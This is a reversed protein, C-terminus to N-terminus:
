TVEGWKTVGGPSKGINQLSPQVYYLRKKRENAPESLDNAEKANQSRKGTTDHAVKFNNGEKM